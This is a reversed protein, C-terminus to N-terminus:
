LKKASVIVNDLHINGRVIFFDVVPFIGEIFSEFSDLEEKGSFIKNITLVGDEKLLAKVREFFGKTEIEKPIGGGKFVDMCILDYKYRLNKVFDKADTVQININSERLDFYKKALEIVLPDIEVGDIAVPGFKKTIIKAITGAGLGLLLVRSDLGLQLDAPIMKDWYHQDTRGNSNLTRSQTFGDIILRRFGYGEVVKIEGGLPSEGKYLIKEWFNM